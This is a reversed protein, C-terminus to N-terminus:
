EKISFFVLTPSKEEHYEVSVFFDDWTAIPPEIKYYEEWHFTYGTNDFKKVFSVNRKNNLFFDICIFKKGEIFNPFMVYNKNTLEKMIEMPHLDKLRSLENENPWSTGFDMVYRLHLSDNSFEYIYNSMSPQYLILEDYKKLPTKPSFTINKLFDKIPFLHCYTTGRHSDIIALAKKTEDSTYNGKDIVIKDKQYLMISNVFFDITLNRIFYGDFDYFLLERKNKDLLIIEAKDENIQFDDISVYEGVGGGIRNIVRVFSGDHRFIFLAKSKESDLIFVYNDTFIIKDIEGIFVNNDEEQLQIYRIPLIISNTSVDIINNLDVTIKEGENEVHRKQPSCSYIILLLLFSNFSIISFRNKKM